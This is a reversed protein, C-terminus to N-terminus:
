APARRSDLHRSLFGPNGALIRAYVGIGFDVWDRLLDCYHAVPHHPDDYRAYSEHYCGGACLSRIRCTECPLGERRQAGDLFDGLRERDVGSAVDGFTPLSSGTFRHCLNLGGEGDVALMGVGAGCPLSKARGDVLDTLLQHLNSFGINEGRLAAALYEEGLAKMGEFVRALEAGDLGLPSSGSATVPSFGVEFFGIEDRLHRHIAVVDTVGRTLTVRAGIARSRYRELLRRANRAVVEYTGAGGLTRRNRDHLEPPGDMSVTLGFRHADLWDIKADDLLTANTTLSFDIERGGEAARREAHEVIERILPLQTLPEGGFFVVNVRKRGGSEHLLLELAAAATELTMRKAAAPSTLDEKYCYGCSLNCGTTVNLVLTTLPTSRVRVPPRTTTVGDGVVRLEVLEGLASAVEDGSARGDFRRRVDDATVAARERFLDLLEGGLPDLEVLSTTPVHLLIRRGDVRVEHVDHVNLRLESM